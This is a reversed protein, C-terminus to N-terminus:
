LSLCIFQLLIYSPSLPQIPTTTLRDFAKLTILINTNTQKNTIQKSASKPQKLSTEIAPALLKWFLPAHSLGNPRGRGINEYNEECVSLHCRYTDISICGITKPPWFSLDMTWLVLTLVNHMNWKPNWPQWFNVMKHFCLCTSTTTTIPSSWRVPLM